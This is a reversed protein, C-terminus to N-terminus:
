ERLDERSWDILDALTRELPLRPRWGTASRLREASGYVIPADAPRALAPDPVARIELATAAAMKELLEAISVAQGSCLNFTGALRLECIAMYARASDRVDIFDRAAALNGVRLEATASGSSEASAIQRAFGSAVFAPSQGPGIQNFARVVAIQRGDAAHAACVEEMAAKAEGYPSAPAFPRDETLPLDDPAVEGYVEASSVCLVFARPAGDRVAELLNGVGTTNVAFTESPNKWSAAVSPAGAMNVVVDPRARAVAASLSRPDLLDCELEARGRDRSTGVVRAGCERAADRVHAGVFGTAGLLLLNM